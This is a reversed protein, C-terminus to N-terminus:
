KTDVRISANCADFNTSGDEQDCNAGFRVFLKQGSTMSQWAGYTIGNAVCTVAPSAATANATPDQTDSYQYAANLRANGTEQRMELTFRASDLGTTDIWDTLPHFIPTSSGRATWVATPGGAFSKNCSM